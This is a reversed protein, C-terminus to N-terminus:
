PSTTIVATITGQNDTLGAGYLGDLDDNICLSMVGSQGAPASAKAGVLFPANSGIRGIMAGEHQGPMTYGPKAIYGSAGDPGCEGWMPNATWKGSCAIATNQTGIVTVGTDQWSLSSNIAVTMPYLINVAGQVNIPDFGCSTLASAMTGRDTEPLGALVAMAVDLASLEPWQDHIIQALEAATIRPGFVDSVAIALIEATIESTEPAGKPEAGGIVSASGLLAAAAANASLGQARLARLQEVLTPDALM